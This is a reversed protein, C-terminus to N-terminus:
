LGTQAVTSHQRPRRNIRNRELLITPKRFVPTHNWEQKWRIKVARKNLKTSFLPEARSPNCETAVVDEALVKALIRSIPCLAHIDEEVFLYWTLVIKKNHGKHWRMLIQMALRDRGGNGEPDRLIWLVIDEWCVVKLEPNGIREDAHGCVWCQNACPILSISSTRLTLIHM